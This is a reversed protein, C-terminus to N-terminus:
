ALMTWHTGNDRGGSVLQPITLRLQCLLSSLYEREGSLEYIKGMIPKSFYAVVQLLLKSRNCRVDFYENICRSILFFSIM